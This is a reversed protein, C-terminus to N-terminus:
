AADHQTEEGSISQKAARCTTKLRFAAFSVVIPRGPIVRFYLPFYTKLKPDSAQKDTATKPWAWDKGSPFPCASKWRM